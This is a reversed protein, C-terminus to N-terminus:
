CYITGQSRKTGRCCTTQQLLSIKFIPLGVAGNVRAPCLIDNQNKVLQM